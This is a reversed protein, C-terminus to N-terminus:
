ISPDMVVPVTTWDTQITGFGYKIRAKVYIKFSQTLGVTCFKCMLYGHRNQPLTVQEGSDPDNATTAGPETQVLIVSQPLTQREGNLDCEAHEIDVTIVFPGYYDWYTPYDNFNRGRWDVMTVLSDINIYSGKEGFDVDYVLHEGLAVPEAEPEAVAEVMEPVDDTDTPDVPDPTEDGDSAEGPTEAPEVTETAEGPTEAAEESGAPEAVEAAEPAAPTEVEPTEDGSVEVAPTDTAPAEVVPAEAIPVEPVPVEDVTVTCIGSVVGGASATIHATGVKHVQIVGDTVTAVSPDSSSWSVGDYSALSPEVVAHLTATEGVTLTVSSESLSVSMVDIEKSCSVFVLLLSVFVGLIGTRTRM